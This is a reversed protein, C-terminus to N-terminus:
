QHMSSAETATPTGERSIEDAFQIQRVPTRSGSGGNDAPGGANSGDTIGEAALRNPDAIKTKTQAHAQGTRRIPATGGRVRAALNAEPDHTKPTIYRGLVPIKRRAEIAQQPEDSLSESLVRHIRPALYGLKGLPISLGHM